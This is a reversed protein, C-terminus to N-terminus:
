TPIFVCANVREGHQGHSSYLVHPDRQVAAPGLQITRFAVDLLKSSLDFPFCGLVRTENRKLMLVVRIVPSHDVADIAHYLDMLVPWEDEPIGDVVEPTGQVVEHPLESDDVEASLRRHRFGLLDLKRHYGPCLVESTGVAEKKVDTVGVNSAQLRELRIFPPLLAHQMWEGLQDGEGVNVLVPLKM